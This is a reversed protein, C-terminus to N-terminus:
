VGDFDGTETGGFVSVGTAIRASCNGIGGVMGGIWIDGGAVDDGLPNTAGPGGGGSRDDIM